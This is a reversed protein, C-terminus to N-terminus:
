VMLIPDENLSEKTIRNNGQTMSIKCSQFLLVPWKKCGLWESIIYIQPHVSESGQIQAQTTASCTLGVVKGQKYWWLLNSQAAPGGLAVWVWV